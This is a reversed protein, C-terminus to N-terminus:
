KFNTTVIQTEKIRKVPAIPGVVKVLVSDFGLIQLAKIRNHGNIIEMKPSVLVPYVMGYECISMVLKDIPSESKNNRYEPIEVLDKIKVYQHKM